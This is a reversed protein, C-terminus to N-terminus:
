QDKWVSLDRRVLDELKLIDDKFYKKVIRSRLDPDLNEAPQRGISTAASVLKQRMTRSPLLTRYVPRFKQSTKYVLRNVGPWRAVGSRNSHTELPLDHRSVGLFSQLNDLTIQLNRRFDTEFIIVFINEKGFADYWNILQQAYYGRDIYSYQMREQRGLVLREPEREIAEKFSLEEYGRFRVHQYNSFARDAPNRLMVILKVHSGLIGRVRSVADRSYMYQPTIEGCLRGEAKSFCSAYHDVGRNFNSDNCFFGLEKQRPVFIDPHKDLLDHLTTTGSKAAGIGLFSPLVSM